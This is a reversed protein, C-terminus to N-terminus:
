GIRPLDTGPVTLHVLGLLQNRRRLPASSEQAPLDSDASPADGAEPRGTWRSLFSSQAM